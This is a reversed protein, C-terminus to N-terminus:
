VDQTKRRRAWATKWSNIRRRWTRQKIFRRYVRKRLFRGLRLYWPADNLLRTEEATLSDPYHHRQLRLVSHIDAKRGIRYLLRRIPAFAGTTMVGTAFDVLVPRGATDRLINGRRLDGHSVGREHMARVLAKLDAFFDLPISDAAQGREPRDRLDGPGETYEMILMDRGCLECSQPIGPVDTLAQLVDREHRLVRRAFLVRVVLPRLSFDKVLMKRGDVAARFVDPQAISNGRQLLDANPFRTLAGCQRDIRGM